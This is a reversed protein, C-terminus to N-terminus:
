RHENSMQEDDDDDDDDSRCSGTTRKMSMCTVLRIKKKEKRM